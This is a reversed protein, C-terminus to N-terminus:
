GAKQLHSSRTEHAFGVRQCKRLCDIHRGNSIWDKLKAADAENWESFNGALIITNYRILDMRGLNETETLTVPIQFRQDFLHWIEGADLSSTSGGVFLLFRHGLYNRLVTAGWILERRRYDPPFPM